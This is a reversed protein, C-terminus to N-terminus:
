ENHIGGGAIPRAFLTSTLLLVPESRVYRNANDFRYRNSPDFRDQEKSGHCGEQRSRLTDFRAPIGGPFTAGARILGDNCSSEPIL